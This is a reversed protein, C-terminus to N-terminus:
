NDDVSEFKPKKARTDLKYQLRKRMVVADKHNIRFNYRNQIRHSWKFQSKAAAKMQIAHNDLEGGIASILDRHEDSMDGTDEDDNVIKCIREKLGMLSHSKQKILKKAGRLAYTQRDLEEISVGLRDDDGMVAKLYAIQKELERIQNNKEREMEEFHKRYENSQELFKGKNTPTCSLIPNDPVTM